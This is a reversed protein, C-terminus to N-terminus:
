FGFDTGPDSNQCSILNTLLGQYGLEAGELGYYGPDCRDVGLEVEVSISSTM